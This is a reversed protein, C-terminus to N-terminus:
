AASRTPFAVWFTTGSPEGDSIHRSILGIQGGQRLVLQRTIALGLGTGSAQVSADHVPKAFREFIESRKDKPIGPGRDEIEFSVEATSIRCELRVSSGRPSYKIANSLLNSLIQQLRGEDAEIVADRESENMEISVGFSEAYGQMAAVVDRQAKTCSLAAPTITLHGEDLAQLTLIDNVLMLLREGNQNALELLRRLKADVNPGYRKLAIELSGILSTLPTRLEHNVTEIFKARTQVLREEASIDNLVCYFTEQGIRDVKSIRCRIDRDTEEEAFAIVFTRAEPIDGMTDIDPVLDRLKQLADGDTDAHLLERARRNSTKFDGARNFVVIGDDVNQFIALFQAQAQQARLSQFDARELSRALAQARGRATSAAVIAISFLIISVLTFMIARLAYGRTVARRPMSVAAELQTGPIEETETILDRPTLQTENLSTFAMPGYESVIEIIMEPDSTTKSLLTHFYTDGLSSAFVGRSRGDPTKWPWAIPTVKRATGRSTIPVGLVYTDAKAGRARQFYIRDSLDLGILQPATAWLVTGGDSIIVLSDIQNVKEVTARLLDGYTEEIETPDFVQARSFEEMLTGIQLTANSLSSQFNQNFLEAVHDLNRRGENLTRRYDFILFLLIFLAILVVLMRTGDTIRSAAGRAIGRVKRRSEAM